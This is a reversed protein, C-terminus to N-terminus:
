TTIYVVGRPTDGKEHCWDIYAFQLADFATDIKDIQDALKELEGLDYRELKHTIGRKTVTTKIRSGSAWRSHVIQNRIEEAKLAKDVVEELDNVRPFEKEVALALM